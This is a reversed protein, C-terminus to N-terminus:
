WGWCIVRWFSPVWLAQIHRGILMLFPFDRIPLESIHFLHLYILFPFDHIHSESNLFPLGLLPHYVNAVWGGVKLESYLFYGIVGWLDGKLYGM